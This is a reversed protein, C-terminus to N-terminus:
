KWSFYQTICVTQTTIFDPSKLHANLQHVGHFCKWAFSFPMLIDKHYKDAFFPIGVFIQYHEKEMAQLM